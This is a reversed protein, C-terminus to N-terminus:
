RRKVPPLALRENLEREIDEEHFAFHGGKRGGDGLVIQGDAVRPVSNIFSYGAIKAGKGGPPVKSPSKALHKKWLVEGSEPNFAAVAVGGALEVHTGASAIIEGGSLCVGYVPWSSELQGNVCIYRESPALLYKWRQSGNDVNIAYIWGDHAGFVAVKGAVVPPSSIRSNAIFRWSVKGNRRAELRHQHVVAVIEVGAVNVPQTQLTGARWQKLWDTAVPGPPLGGDAAITTDLPLRGEGKFLRRDDPLRAPAPEGIMAQFGRVQTICGCATPTFYTMGNAPIKGMACGSRAVCVQEGGFDKDYYASQGFLFYRPTATFRTCRQNWSSNIVRKIEGSALDYRWVNTFAGAFWAAGDRWLVNYGWVNYNPRFPEDTQHVVSGSSADITAIYPSNGGSIACSGFLIVRDGAPVIQGPGRRYHKDPKGDKRPVDRSAVEKCEWLTRGDTLSIALLAETNKSHPWRGGFERREGPRAVLCYGRGAKQDVVLGLLLKGPKSVAWRQGGSKRHFCVVRDRLGAVLDDGAVRVCATEERLENKAFGTDAYTRLPKGTAIDMATLDGDRKLWAYVEGDAAVLSWRRQAVERDRPVSWLLVGNFADRGQLVWTDRDNPKKAERADNVDMVAYRGWIRIGAGPSYGAANGEFPNPQVGTIWQQQRVPTVLMDQSVPNGDAGHDFHTWNDMESPRPKNSVQWRGNKKIIMVGDPAAIRTLEQGDPAADGIADLDAIVVTALNSAYPLRSRDHWTAVSALGYVGKSIITARAADRIADDLALGHVLYTGKQTLDAELRGDKVGICAVLGGGVNTKALLRVPEDQGFAASCIAFFTGAALVVLSDIRPISVM